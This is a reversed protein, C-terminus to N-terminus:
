ELNNLSEIRGPLMEPDINSGIVDSVFSKVKEVLWSIGMNIDSRFPRYEGSYGALTSFSNSRPGLQFYSAGSPSYGIAVAWNKFSLSNKTSNAIATLTGYAEGTGPILKLITGLFRTPYVAAFSLSELDSVSDAYAFGATFSYQPGKYNKFLTIPNTGGEVALSYYLQGAGIDYYFDIGGGIYLANYGLGVRASILVGSPAGTGGRKRNPATFALGTIALNALITVIAAAAALTTNRLHIYM